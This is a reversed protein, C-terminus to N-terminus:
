LPAISAGELDGLLGIGAEQIPHGRQKVIRHEVEAVACARPRIPEVVAPFCRKEPRRRHTAGDLFLVSERQTVVRYGSTRWQLDVHKLHDVLPTDTFGVRDRQEEDMPGPMRCPTPVFMEQAEEGVLTIASQGYAKAAMAAARGGLRQAGTRDGVIDLIDAQNGVTQGRLGTTIPWEMPPRMTCFYRSDCSAGAPTKIADMGGCPFRPDARRQILCCGHCKVLIAMVPLDNGYM